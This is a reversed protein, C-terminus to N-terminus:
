RANMLDLAQIYEDMARLPSFDVVGFLLRCLRQARWDGVKIEWKKLAPDKLANQRIVGYETNSNGTTWIEIVESSDAQGAVTKYCGVLNRGWKKAMPVMEKEVSDIYANVKDPLLRSQSYLYITSRYKNDRKMKALNPSFPAPEWIRRLWDTRYQVSELIWNEMWFDKQSLEQIRDLTAWDDLEWLALHENYRIGVVFLGVLRQGIREADPVYDTKIIEHLKGGFGGHPIITLNEALYLMANEKM